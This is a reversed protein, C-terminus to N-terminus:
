AGERRDVKGEGKEEGKRRGPVERGVVFFMLCDLEMKIYAERM